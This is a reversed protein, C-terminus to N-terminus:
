IIPIQLRKIPWLQIYNSFLWKGYVRHFQRSILYYYTVLTAGCYKCSSLSSKSSSLVSSTTVAFITSYSSIASSIINSHTGVSEDQGLEGCWLLVNLLILICIIADGKGPLLLRKLLMMVILPIKVLKEHVSYKDLKEQPFWLCILICEFCSVKRPILHRQWHQPKITANSFSFFYFWYCKWDHYKLFQGSLWKKM